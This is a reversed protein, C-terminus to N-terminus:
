GLTRELADDARQQNHEADPQKALRPLASRRFPCIRHSQQHFEHPVACRDDTALAEVTRRMEENLAPSMANRKEPRNFMVWAIGEDFEVLVLKGWPEKKRAM